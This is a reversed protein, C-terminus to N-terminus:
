LTQLGVVTTPHFRSPVFRVHSAQGDSMISSYVLFKPKPASKPIGEQLVFSRKSVGSLGPLQRIYSHKGRRNELVRLEAPFRMNKGEYRSSFFAVCIGMIGRKVTKM